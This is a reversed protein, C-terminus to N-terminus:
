VNPRWGDLVYKRLKIKQIKSIDLNFDEIISELIEQQLIKLLLKGNVQHKTCFNAFKTMKIERGLFFGVEYCTWSEVDKSCTTSNKAVLDKNDPRWGEKVYALLKNAEFRLMGIDQILDDEFLDHLLTVDVQMQSMKEEYASLKLIKLVQCIDEIANIENERGMQSASEAKIGIQFESQENENKFEQDTEFSKREYSGAGDQLFGKSESANEERSKGNTLVNNQNFAIDPNTDRDNTCLLNPGIDSKVTEKRPKILPPAINDRKKIVKAYLDKINDKADENVKTKKMSMGKRKAPIPPIKRTGQKGQPTENVQRGTTSLSSEPSEVDKPKRLSISKAPIPLEREFIEEVKFPNKEATVDNATPLISKLSSRKPPIPPARDKDENDEVNSNPSSANEDGHMQVYVIEDNGEMEDPQSTKKADRDQKRGETDCFTEKAPVNDWPYDLVRLKSEKFDCAHIKIEGIAYLSQSRAKLATNEHKHKGPVNKKLSSVRRPPQPAMNSIKEESISFQEATGPKSFLDKQPKEKKLQLPEEYLEKCTSLHSVENGNSKVLDCVMFQIRGQTSMNNCLWEARPLDITEFKPEAISLYLQDNEVVQGMKVTMNANYPIAILYKLDKIKATAYVIDHKEIKEVLFSGNPLLHPPLDQDLQEFVVSFPTSRNKLEGLLYLQNEDYERLAEIFDGKVSRPLMVNVPHPGRSEVSIGMPIDSIEKEKVYFLTKKPFEIGYVTFQIQNQICNPLFKAECIDRICSFTRGGNIPKLMVKHKCNSPIIFTRGAEDQGFVTELEGKGYITLATESCLSFSDNLKIEEDLKALIPLKHKSLVEPVPLSKALWVVCGQEAM